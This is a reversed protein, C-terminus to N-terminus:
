RELSNGELQKPNAPLQERSAYSYIMEMIKLGRDKNKEEVDQKQKAITALVNATVKMDGEELAKLGAETLADQIDNASKTKNDLGRNFREAIVVNENPNQHYKLHKNTTVTAVGLDESIKKQTEGGKVFKACNYLRRELKSSGDKLIENKIQKCINCRPELM